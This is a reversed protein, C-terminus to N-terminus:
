PRNGGPNLPGGSVPQPVFPTGFPPVMGTLPTTIGPGSYGAGANYGGAALGGGPANFSGTVYGDDGIYTGSWSCSSVQFLIACPALRLLRRM